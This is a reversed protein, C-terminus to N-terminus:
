LPSTKLAAFAALSTRLSSLIISVSVSYTEINKLQQPYVHSTIKRTNKSCDRTLRLKKWMKQSLSKMKLLLVYRYRVVLFDFKGRVFTTSIRTPILKLFVVQLMLTTRYLEWAQLIYFHPEQWIALFSRCISLPWVARTVHCLCLRRPQVRGIEEKFLYDYIRVAHSDRTDYNVIWYFTFTTTM